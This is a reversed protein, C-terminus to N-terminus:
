ILSISDGNFQNLMSSAIANPIERNEKITKNKTMIFTDSRLFVAASIFLLSSMIDAGASVNVCTVVARWFRYLAMNEDDAVGSYRM